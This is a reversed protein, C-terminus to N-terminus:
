RAKPRGRLATARRRLGRVARRIGFPQPTTKKPGQKPAATKKVKRRRKAGDIFSPNVSKAQRPTLTQVAWTSVSLRLDEPTASGNRLERLVSWFPADIVVKPAIARRRRLVWTPPQVHEPQAWQKVLAQYLDSLATSTTDVGIVLLLGTPRTNVQLCMLDPRHQRLTPIIKWVDGTWAGTERNRQSEISSRPLMDDFIVAAGPRCNKEINM